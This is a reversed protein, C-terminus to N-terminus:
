SEPEDMRSSHRLRRLFPESGEELEPHDEHKWAGFARDIVRRFRLRTLEKRIAEAVIRSQEGKPAERRLEQLLDDPLSFNAQKTRTGAM